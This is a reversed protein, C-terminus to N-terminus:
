FLIFRVEEKHSYKAKKDADLFETFEIPSDPEFATDRINSGYRSGGFMATMEEDKFSLMLLCDKSFDIEIGKDEEPETFSVYSEPM